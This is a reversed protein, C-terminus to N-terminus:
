LGVLISAWGSAYRAAIRGTGFTGCVRESEDRLLTRSVTNRRM